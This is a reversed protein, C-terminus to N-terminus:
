SKTNIKKWEGREKNTKQFNFIQGQQMTHVILLNGM